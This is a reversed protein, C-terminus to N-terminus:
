PEEIECIYGGYVNGLGGGILVAVLLVLVSQWSINQAPSKKLTSSEDKQEDAKAEGEEREIEPLLTFALSASNIVYYRRKQEDEATYGLHSGCKKCTAETRM